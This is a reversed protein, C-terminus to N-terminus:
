AMSNNSSVARNATHPPTQFPDYHEALRQSQLQLPHLAAITAVQIHIDPDALIQRNSCGAQTALTVSRCLSDLAETLPGNTRYIVIMDCANYYAQEAEYQLQNVRTLNEQTYTLDGLNFDNDMLDESTDNLLPNSTINFIWRYMGALLQTFSTGHQELLIALTEARDRADRIRSFIDYYPDEDVKDREAIEVPLLTLVLDPLDFNWVANGDFWDMGFGSIPIESPHSYVGHWEIQDFEQRARNIMSTLPKSPLGQHIGHLVPLYVEPWTQLYNLAFGIPTIRNPPMVDTEAILGPHLIGPELWVTTQILLDTLSNAVPIHNM